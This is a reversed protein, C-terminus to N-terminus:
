DVSHHTQLSVYRKVQEKHETVFKDAETENDFFHCSGDKLLVGWSKIHKPVNNLELKALLEKIQM